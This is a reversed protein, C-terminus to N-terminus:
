IFLQSCKLKGGKKGNMVRNRSRFYVKKREKSSVITGCHSNNNIHTIERKTEEGGHVKAREREREESLKM